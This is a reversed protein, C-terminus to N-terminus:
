AKEVERGSILKRALYMFPTGLLSTFIYIVYTSMIISFLTGGEYIGLFAGLSFLVTNLLQSLLTSGNNRLWLGPKKDGFRKTTFDWIKYYLWVDFRQALAYVILSALIVRPTNSFIATFAPMAVDNPSPIYFVWSQSILLFAASAAVGIYVAKKAERQGYMESIIDTALSTSAFLINGLTQEMGFARVLIIVEINALITSTVIWGTLGGKGFFRGSLVTLSFLVFLSIILIFENRM